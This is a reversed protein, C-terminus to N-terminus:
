KEGTLLDHKLYELGAILQHKGKKTVRLCVGFDVKDNRVIVFGFSQASKLEEILAMLEKSEKVTEKVTKAM